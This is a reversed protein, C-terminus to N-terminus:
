FVIRAQDYETDDPAIVRGKLTARIQPISIAEHAYANRTELSM